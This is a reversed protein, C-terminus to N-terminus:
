FYKGGKSYKKKLGLLISIFFSVALLFMGASVL